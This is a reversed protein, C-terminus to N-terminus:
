RSRCPISKRRSFLRWSKPRPWPFLVACLYRIAEDTLRVFHQKGKIEVGIPEVEIDWFKWTRNMTLGEGRWTIMRLTPVDKSGVWELEVIQDMPLYVPRQWIWKLLDRAEPLSTM